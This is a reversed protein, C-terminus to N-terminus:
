LNIAVWERAIADVWKELTSVWSGFDLQGSSKTEANRESKKGMALVIIRPGLRPGDTSEM